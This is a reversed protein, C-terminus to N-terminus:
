LKQLDCACEIGEACDKCCYTEEGKWYGRGNNGRWRNRPVGCGICIEELLDIPQNGRIVYKGAEFSPVGLSIGM